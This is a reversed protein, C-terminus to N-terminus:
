YDQSIYALATIKSYSPFSFHHNPSLINSILYSYVFFTCCGNTENFYGDLYVFPCSAGNYYDLIMCSEIKDMRCLASVSDM